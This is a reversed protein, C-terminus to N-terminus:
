PRESWGTAALVDRQRARRAVEAQMVEAQEKTFYLRSCAIDNLANLDWNGQMIGTESHMTLNLLIHGIEHAMASGLVYEASARSSSAGSAIAAVERQELEEVRNYFIYALVRDPGTGPALGTARAPMNMRDSMTRPLIDVWIQSLGFSQQDVSANRSDEVAVPADIWQSAVRAKQFIGSAVKEAEALRKSDVGAYNRVHITFTLESSAAAPRATGVAAVAVLGLIVQWKATTKM